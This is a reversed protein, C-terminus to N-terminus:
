DAYRTLVAWGISDGYDDADPDAYDCVVSLCVLIPANALHSLLALIGPSMTESEHLIPGHYGYQNSLGAVTEWGEDHYDNIELTDPDGNFEVDWPAAVDDRVSFTGDPYIIHATGFEHEHLSDSAAQFPSTRLSSM